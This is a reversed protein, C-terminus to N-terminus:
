WGEEYVSVRATYPCKSCKAIIEKDEELVLMGEECDPCHMDILIDLYEGGDYFRGGATSRYLVTCTEKSKEYRNGLEPKTM